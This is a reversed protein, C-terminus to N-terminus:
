KFCMSVYFKTLLNRNTTNTRVEMTGCYYEDFIFVETQRSCEEKVM